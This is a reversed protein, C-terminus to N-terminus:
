PSITKVVNINVKSYVVTFLLFTKMKLCKRLLSGHSCNDIIFYFLSSFFLCLTMLPYFKPQLPPILVLLWRSFNQLFPKKFFQLLNVPLHRHWLIEKIFNWAKLAAVNNFLSELLSTKVHIKCLKLFCRNSFLQEQILYTNPTSEGRQIGNLLSSLTYFQPYGRFTKM